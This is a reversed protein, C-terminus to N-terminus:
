FRGSRFISYILLVFMFITVIFGIEIVPMRWLISQAHMISTGIILGCMVISLALM